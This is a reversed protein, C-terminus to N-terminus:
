RYVTSYHIKAIINRHLYIYNNKIIVYGRQVVKIKAYLSVGHEYITASLDIATKIRQWM